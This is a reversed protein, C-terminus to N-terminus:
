LLEPGLMGYHLLFTRVLHSLPGVQQVTFTSDSLFQRWLSRCQSPSLLVDAAALGPWEAAAMIDVGGGSSSGASAAPIAQLVCLLLM